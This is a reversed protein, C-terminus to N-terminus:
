PHTAAAGAVTGPMLDIRQFAAASNPDGASHLAGISSVIAAILEPATAPLRMRVQSGIFLEVTPPDGSQDTGRAQTKSSSGSRDTNGHDAAERVRRSWYYFKAQTIQEQRCFAAITLGSSRFEVLRRRWSELEGVDLRKNM